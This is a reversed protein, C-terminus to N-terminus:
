LGETKICFFELYVGYKMDCLLTHIDSFEFIILSEYYFLVLFSMVIEINRIHIKLM